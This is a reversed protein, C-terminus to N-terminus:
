RSLIFITQTDYIKQIAAFANEGWYSEINPYNYISMYLLIGIYKYMENVDTEFIVNSETQMVARNTEQVIMEVLEQTFFYRFMDSPTALARIDQPLRCDGRFAVENVHLQMKKTFIALM